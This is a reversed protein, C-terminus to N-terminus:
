FFTAQPAARQSRRPTAGPHSRGSMRRASPSRRDTFEDLAVGSLRERSDDVRKDGDM